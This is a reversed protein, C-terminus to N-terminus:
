APLPTPRAAAAAASAMAAAPSSRAAAAGSPQSQSSRRRQCGHVRRRHPSCRHLSNLVILLHGPPLAHVEAQVACSQLGPRGMNVARTSKSSVEGARAAAHAESYQLSTWLATGGVAAVVAFVVLRLVGTQRRRGATRVRAM